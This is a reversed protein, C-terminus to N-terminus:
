GGELQPGIRRGSAGRAVVVDDLLEAGRRVAQGPSAGDLAGRIAEGAVPLRDHLGASDREGRSLDVLLLHAEGAMQLVGRDPGHHRAGSEDFGELGAHMSFGESASVIFSGRADVAMAAMPHALRERGARGDALGFNRVEAGPAVRRFRRLVGPAYVAGRERAAHPVRGDAGVAMPLVVDEPRAIGLGEHRSGVDRRADARRAVPRELEVFLVRQRGVAGLAKGVAEVAHRGAAADRFHRVARAAVARVVNQWGGVRAGPKGFRVEGGGAALAPAM